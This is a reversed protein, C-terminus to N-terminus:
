PKASLMHYGMSQLTIWLQRAIANCEISDAPSDDPVQITVHNPVTSDPRAFWISTSLPFRARKTLDIAM